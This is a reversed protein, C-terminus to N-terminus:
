LIDYINIFSKIMPGVARYHKNLQSEWNRFYTDNICKTNLSINEFREGEKMLLVNEWHTWLWSSNFISSFDKIDAIKISM